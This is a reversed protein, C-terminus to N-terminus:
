DNKLVYCDTDPTQFLFFCAEFDLSIETRVTATVTKGKKATHADSSVRPTPDLSKGRDHGWRDLGTGPMASIFM